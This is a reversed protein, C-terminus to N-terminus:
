QTGAQRVNLGVTALAAIMDPVSDGGSIVAQRVGGEAVQSGLADALVNLRVKAAAWEIDSSEPVASITSTKDDVIVDIGQRGVALLIAERQALMDNICLHLDAIGRHATVGTRESHVTAGLGSNAYAISTGDLNRYSLRADLKPLFASIYGRDFGQSNGGLLLGTTDGVEGALFAEIEGDVEAYTPVRDASELDDWLGSKVHMAEVDFDGRERKSAAIARAQAVSMGEPLTMWSKEALIDFKPGQALVIAVELLPDSEPGDIGTTEVDCFVTLTQPTMKKM